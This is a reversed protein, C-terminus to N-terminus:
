PRESGTGRARGRPLSKDIEANLFAGFLVALATVYMFLLVVIPAGLPGYTTHERFAVTVYIRL